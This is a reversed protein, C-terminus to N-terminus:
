SAPEAPTAAPALHEQRALRAIALAAAICVLGASYFALVAPWRDLLPSLLRLLRGDELSLLLYSAGALVGCAIRALGGLPRWVEPLALVLYALCLWSAYHQWAMPALLLTLVLGFSADLLWARRPTSGPQRRLRLMALLGLLNAALNLASTIGTVPAAEGDALSDRSVFFRAHLSPLPINTGRVTGPLMAPLEVTTFHWWPALGTFPLTVLALAAATIGAVLLARWRGHLLYVLPLWISLPKVVLALGLALGSRGDHGSAAAALSLAFLLILLGDQQGFRISEQWSWYTAGLVLAGALWLTRAGSPVFRRIFYGMAALWLAQNGLFFVLRAVGDPLLTLPGFLLVLTAPLLHVRDAWVPIEDHYPLIGQLLDRAGDLNVRLDSQRPLWQTYIAANLYAAAAVALLVPQGMGAPRWPHRALVTGWYALYATGFWVAAYVLLAHQTAPYNRVLHNSRDDLYLSAAAAAAPLLALFPWATARIRGPMPGPVALTGLWWLGALALATIGALALWATGPWFLATRGLAVTAVYIAGGALGAVALPLEVVALLPTFRALWPPLSLGPGASAAPLRADPSHTSMDVPSIYTDPPHTSTDVPPVPTNSM